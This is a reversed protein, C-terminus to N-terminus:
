LRPLIRCSDSHRNLRGVDEEELATRRAPALVRAPQQPRSWHSDSPIRASSAPRAARQSIGAASGLQRNRMSGLLAAGAAHPRARTVETTKVAATSCTTRWARPTHKRERPNDIGGDSRKARGREMWWRARTSHRGRSLSRRGDSFLPRHPSTPPPQAPPNLPTPSTALAPRSAETADICGPPQPRRSHCPRIRATTTHKRPGVPSPGSALAGATARKCPPSQRPESVAAGREAIGHAM